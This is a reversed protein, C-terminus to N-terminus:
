TTPATGMPFWEIVEDAALDNDLAVRIVLNQSYGAANWRLRLEQGIVLFTPGTPELLAFSGGIPPTTAPQSTAPQSTTATKSGGSSGCALSFALVVMILLSAMATRRTM